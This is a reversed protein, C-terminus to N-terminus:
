MCFPARKKLFLMYCSPLLEWIGAEAGGGKGGAPWTLLVQCCRRLGGQCFSGGPCPRLIQANALHGLFYALESLRPNYSKENYGQPVLLNSIAEM